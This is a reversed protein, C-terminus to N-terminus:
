LMIRERRTPSLWVPSARRRRTGASSRCGAGARGALPLSRIRPREPARLRFQALSAVPARVIPFAQERRRLLAIPGCIGLKESGDQRERPRDRPPAEIRGLRDLIRDLVGQEGQVADTVGVARLQRDTGPQGGDDIAARDVREAAPGAGAPDLDGVLGCSFSEGVGPRFRVHRHLRM